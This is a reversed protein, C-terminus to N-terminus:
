HYSMYNKERKWEIWTQILDKTFVGGMLLFAYDKELADIAEALNAPTKPYKELEKATMEYFGISLNELIFRTKLVTL